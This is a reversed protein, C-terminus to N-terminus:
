LKEGASAQSFGWFSHHFHPYALLSQCSHLNYSVWVPWFNSISNWDLHREKAPMNQSYQICHETRCFSQLGVHSAHILGLLYYLQSPISICSIVSFPAAEGYHYRQRKSLFYHPCKEKQWTFSSNVTLDPEEWSSQKAEQAGRLEIAHQADGVSSPCSVGAQSCWFTLQFSCGHFLGSRKRFWLGTSPLLPWGILPSFSAPLSSEAKFSHHKLCPGMADHETDPHSSKEILFWLNWGKSTFPQWWCPETLELLMTLPQGCDWFGALIM